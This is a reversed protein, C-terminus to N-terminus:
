SFPKYFLESQADMLQFVGKDNANLLIWERDQRLLYRPRRKAAAFFDAM